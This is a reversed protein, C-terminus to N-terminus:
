DECIDEQREEGEEEGGRGRHEERGEEEKGRRGERERGGKSM